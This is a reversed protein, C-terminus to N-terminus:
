LETELGPAEHGTGAETIFTGSMRDHWTLSDSDVWAWVFGLMLASLSVLVGFARWLSERPTPCVGQLNRIDCGMWLLGPTTSTLATYLAFYAFIFIIGVVGLVAFSIPNRSLHGGSRWFIVGFLVAGAVLVLADALGALFRRGVPALFMRQPEEEKATMASEPLGVVIEMASSEPAELVMEEGPLLVTRRGSPSEESKELPITGLAPVSAPRPAPLDELDLDFAPASEEPMRETDDIVVPAETQDSGEFDLELSEGSDANRQLKARRKRFDQVRNSLVERWDHASDEPPSLNAPRADETAAFSPAPALPPAEPAPPERESLIPEPPLKAPSATSPVSPAGIGDPFLTTFSSSGGRGAAKAFEFGCKKCQALGAYSVFGCKPCKM